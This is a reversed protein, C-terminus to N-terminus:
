HWKSNPTICSELKYKYHLKLSTLTQYHKFLRNWEIPYSIVEIAVLRLMTNSWITHSVLCWLPHTSPYSLKQTKLHSGHWTELVSVSNMLTLTAPGVMWAPWCTAAISFHPRDWRGPANWGAVKKCTKEKVIRNPFFLIPIHMPTPPARSVSRTPM